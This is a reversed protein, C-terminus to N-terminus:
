ERAPAAGAAVLRALNSLAPATHEALVEFAKAITPDDRRDQAGRTPNMRSGANWTNIEPVAARATTGTLAPLVLGPFGVLTGDFAMPPCVRNREGDDDGLAEVVGIIAASYPANGLTLFEMTIRGPEFVPRLSLSPVGRATCDVFVEGRRSEIAGDALTVRDTGIRRVYGQRVVNSVQRIREVEGMSITGGRFATPEVDSHIRVLVGDSELQGAFDIPEEAAASARVLSSLLQMYSAVLERPQTFARNLMLPERPKVWRINDAPVGNEILWGCTDMATKGSGIITYGGGPESLEALRNPSVFRVGDDVEFSPTHRSPVSPQIYAADVVRKRVKVTTEAGTLLSRFHHGDSDGGLYDSLGYFRVRGSPLLGEDLVRGFYNVVEAGTALEYYGANPGSTDIRGNGLERSDVGYTASPQHLRVFPYADLWHGGPRHRRDVMVVDVDARNILADVFALGSAGTGVVLYDTEIVHM